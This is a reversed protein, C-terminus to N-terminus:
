TPQRYKGVVQDIEYEPTSYDPASRIQWKNTAELENKILGLHALREHAECLPVITDPDHRHYMAFRETHHLIKHPKQCGPFACTSNTKALVHKRIAAPITRSAAEVIAPKSEELGKEHMILFKKMLDNWTGSGKLKGLQEAVSPDLQMIITSQPHITVSQTSLFTSLSQQRSSESQNTQPLSSALPMADNQSDVSQSSDVSPALQPTQLNVSQPPEARLGTVSQLMRFGKVYAELPHQGMIQSKKAWFQDTSATAIAIIPKVANIGKEEIVKRIAPLNEAKGLIRLAENVQHHSIGALKRAYDYIDSFRKRKWIQQKQIEPLLIICKRTWEKANRGYEVFHQHTTRWSTNSSTARPSTHPATSSKRIATAISAIISKM